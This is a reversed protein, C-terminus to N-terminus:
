SDSSNVGSKIKYIRILLPRLLRTKKWIRRKKLEKETETDLIRGDRAIQEVKAVVQSKEILECRFQADGNIRLFTDDIVEFVRHLVFGSEGERRFLVIEGEEIRGKDYKKLWVVDSPLLFPLMSTGTVTLPIPTDLNILAVLSESDTNSDIIIKKM